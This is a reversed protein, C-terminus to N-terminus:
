ARRRRLLALVGLCTLLAVSPEPVAQLAIDNGGTFSNGVSDALYSIVWDFGGSNTVVDGQNLGTFAGSIADTGDNTVLFLLDGATYTGGTFMASLSGSIVVDGTVNVQDYGGIGATNGEIEAILTGALSYNGNVNMIGPSNGPNHFGGSDITLAGTTGSGGITAGSAVTTLTSTVINGDIILTGSTVNTAGTYSNVGTLTLTRGADAADGSGVGIFTLGGNSIVGSISTTRRVTIERTEGGLDLDGSIALGFANGSLASETGIAFNGGAIINNALTLGGNGVGIRGGNITVDGTGFAGNAGYSLVGDDITTGGNYTNASNLRLSGTGQKVLSLRNADTDGAVGDGLFGGYTDITPDASNVTLVSNNTGHGGVVANANGTGSTSLSTVTTNVAATADGLQFTGSNGGAGLILTNTVAMSGGSGLALTGRAVTTGGTYTNAGSLVQTNTNDKVLALNGTIAGLYNAVEANGKLTLTSTTGGNSNTVFADVGTGNTTTVYGLTENFGNLDLTGANIEHLGGGDTGDHIQENALLTVTSSANEMILAFRSVADVGDAKNLLVDGGNVTLGYRNNAQDGGLTLTGSGNKTIRRTVGNTRFINGITIDGAGDFTPNALNVMESSIEAAVSINSNIIIGGNDSFQKTITQGNLDLTGGGNLDITGAFSGSVTGDATANRSLRVEGTASNYTDVRTNADLGAGAVVMGVNIATGPTVTATNAGNTTTIDFSLTQDSMAAASGLKLTGGNITTQGTYTNTGSLTHIGTGSTSVSLKNTAGDQIVGSFDYTGSGGLNLTQDAAGQNTVAGAGTGDNLGGITVNSQVDLTGANSVSVTNNANLAGGNTLRMTGAVVDATGIFNTNNSGIIFDSVLLGPNASVNNQIIGTVNAGISGGNGGNIFLSNNGTGNNSITGVTNIQTRVDINNSARTDATNGLFVLDGTGTIAGVMRYGSRGTHQVSLNANNLTIDETFTVQGTNNNNATLLHAGSGVVSIDQNSKLSSYGSIFLTADQNSNDGIQIAGGLAPAPLGSDGRTNGGLANSGGAGNSQLTGAAIVTFGTYESLVNGFTQTQGAANITLNGSGMLRGNFTNSTSANITLDSGSGLELTSTSNGSLGTASNGTGNLTLTGDTVTLNGLANGNGSLILNGATASSYTTNGTQALTASITNVGTGTIGGSGVTLLGAGSLTWGGSQFDIGNISRGAALDPQFTPTGTFIATDTADSDAPATGLLWNADTAFDTGSNDWTIPAASASVTLGTLAISSILLKSKSPKM